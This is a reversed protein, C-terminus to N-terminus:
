FSSQSCTARRAPPICRLSTAEVAMAAAPVAVWVVAVAVETATDTAATAMATEAAEVAMAMAVATAKATAWHAWVEDAEDAMATEAVGMARATTAMAPEVRVAVATVKAWDAWAGGAVADAEALEGTAVVVM